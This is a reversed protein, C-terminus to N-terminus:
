WRGWCFDFLVIVVVEMVLLSCFLFLVRVVIGLLLLAEGGRVGGARKEGRWCVRFCVWSGRLWHRAEADRMMLM